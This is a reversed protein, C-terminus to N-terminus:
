YDKVSKQKKLVLNGQIARVTRASVKYALSALRLSLFESDAEWTSPDM